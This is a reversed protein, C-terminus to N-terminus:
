NQEKKWIFRRLMYKILDWFLLMLVLFTMVIGVIFPIWYEILDGTYIEM